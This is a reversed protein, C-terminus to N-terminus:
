AAERDLDRRFEYCGHRRALFLLLPRDRKASNCRKCAPTMNTWHDDGGEERPEIHDVTGHFGLELPAGCYSCPDALIIPVYEKTEADKKRGQKPNRHRWARQKKTGKKARYRAYRAKAKEANAANVKVHCPKCYIQLGSKTSNSRSFEAAPKTLRCRPCTRETVTVTM